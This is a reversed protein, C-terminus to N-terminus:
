RYVLTSCAASHAIRESVSGLSRLPASHLLETAIDGALFGEARRRRTMGVSILDASEQVVTAVLAEPAFGHLVRTEVAPATAATASVTTAAMALAAAAEADSPLRTPRATPDDTLAADAVTVALIRAEPDAILAAHRAADLAPQSGDITVIVTWLM